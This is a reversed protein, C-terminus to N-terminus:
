VWVLVLSKFSYVNVFHLPIASDVSKASLYKREFNQQTRIKEKCILFAPCCTYTLLLYSFIIQTTHNVRPLSPIGDLPVQVPQLPPGAHVVHLEVLGLALDQV